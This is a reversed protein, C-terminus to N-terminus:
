GVMVAVVLEVLEVLEMEQEVVVQLTDVV